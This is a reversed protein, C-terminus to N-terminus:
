GPCAADAPDPPDPEAGGPVPAASGPQASRATAAALALAPAVLGPPTALPHSSLEPILLETPGPAEGIDSEPKAAPQPVPVPPAARGPRISTTELLARLLARPLIEVPAIPAALLPDAVVSATPLSLLEPAPTEASGAVPLALPLTKGGEPLVAADPLPLPLSPLAALPPQVAQEPLSTGGAEIALLAGFDALELGDGAQVPVAEGPMPLGPLEPLTAPHIM